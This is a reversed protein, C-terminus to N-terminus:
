KLIPFKWVYKSVKGFAGEGIVKELCIQDRPFEWSIDLPLEYETISTLTTNQSGFQSLNSLKGISSESQSATRMKVIQIEPLTIEGNNEEINRREIIVKKTWQTVAQANAVALKKEQNEKHWKKALWITFVILPALVSIAM